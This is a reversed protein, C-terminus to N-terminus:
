QSQPWCTAALAPEQRATVVPVEMSFAEGRRLCSLFAQRVRGQHEQFYFLVHEPDLQNGPPLDLLHFVGESWYIRNSDPDMEWIGLGASDEALKLIRTDLPTGQRPRIQATQHTTTDTETLPVDSTSPSFTTPPMSLPLSPARVRRELRDNLPPALPNDRVARWSARWPCDRCRSFAMVSCRRPPTTRGRIIGEEDVQLSGTSAQPNSSPETRVRKILFEKV